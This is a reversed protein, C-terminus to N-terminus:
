RARLELAEAEYEIALLRHASAAEVSTSAAASAVEERTRREYFELNDETMLEM